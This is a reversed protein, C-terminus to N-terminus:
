DSTLFEVEINLFKRKISDDSDDGMSQAFPMGRKIWLKGDDIDKLIGGIGIEKGIEEAKDNVFRWSTGRDWISGTLIASKDFFDTVVQYTIYPLVADHPVSNEEYANMTFGNWFDNLAAAKTM